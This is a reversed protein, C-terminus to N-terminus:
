AHDPAIAKPKGAVGHERNKHAQDSMNRELIRDTKMSGLLILRLNLGFCNSIRRSVFNVVM